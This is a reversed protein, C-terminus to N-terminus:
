YFMAVVPLEFNLHGRVVFLLDHLIPLSWSLGASASIALLLLLFGGKVTGTGETPVQLTSNQSSVVETTKKLSEELQVFRNKLQEVTNVAARSSVSLTRSVRQQQKLQQPDEM